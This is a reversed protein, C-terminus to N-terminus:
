QLRLANGIAIKASEPMEKGKMPSTRGKNSEGIKDNWKQSHKRDVNIKHGKKFGSMPINGKIFRGKNDRMYDLIVYEGL